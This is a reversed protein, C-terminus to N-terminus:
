RRPEPKGNLATAIEGALRDLARSFAAAVGAHSAERIPERVRSQGARAPGEAARVSWEADLTVESGPVADFRRIAVAVRVAAPAGPHPGASVAYRSGLRRGLDEALVRPVGERLPEGWRHLESREVRHPAVRVVIQPRDVLEPIAVQTLSVRTAAPDPPAAPEGEAALVYYRMEPSGACGALAFAAVCAFGLATRIM